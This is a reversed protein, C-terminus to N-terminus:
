PQVSCMRNAEGPRVGTGEMSGRRTDIEAGIARHDHLTLLLVATGALTAALSAALLVDQLPQRIANRRWSLGTRGREM